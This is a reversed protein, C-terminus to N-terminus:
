LSPPRDHSNLGQQNEGISFRNEAVFGKVAPILTLSREIFRHISAQSAPFPLVCLKWTSPTISAHQHNVYPM